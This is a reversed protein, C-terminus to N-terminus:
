ASEKASWGEDAGSKHDCTFQCISCKNDNDFTSDGNEDVHPCQYGCNTNSCKGTADYSTHTMVCTLSVEDCGGAFTYAGAGETVKGTAIKTAGEDTSNALVWETPMKVTVFNGNADKASVTIGESGVKTLVDAAGDTCVLEISEKSLTVESIVTDDDALNTVTITVSATGTYTESDENGTAEVSVSLTLTENTESTGPAVNAKSTTKNSLTTDVGGSLSWEYSSITYATDDYDVEYDENSGTAIENAGTISIEITKEEEIPDSNSGSNGSSSPKSSSGGGGGSGGAPAPAAAAEVAKEIAPQAQKMATKVAEVAATAPITDTIIAVLQGSGPTADLGAKTLADIVADRLAVAAGYSVKESPRRRELIGYSIYHNFMAEEDDGFVAKVDPYLAAYEKANFLRRLQAEIDNPNAMRHEAKGFVDYHLKMAEPSNGMVAVVDPNKAAYWAADFEAANATLATGMCMTGILALALFKKMKKM